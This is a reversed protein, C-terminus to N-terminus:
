MGSRIDLYAPILVKYEVEKDLVMGLVEKLNKLLKEVDESVNNSVIALFVSDSDEAVILFHSGIRHLEILANGYSAMYIHVLQLATINLMMESYVESQEAVEKELKEIRDNIEFFRKELFKNQNDVVKWLNEIEIHLQNLLTKHENIRTGLNIIEKDVESLNSSLDSLRSSQQDISRKITELEIRLSQLTKNATDLKKNLSNM